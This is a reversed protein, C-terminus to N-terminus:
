FCKFIIKVLFRIKGSISNLIRRLENKIKTKSSSTNEIFKKTKLTDLMIRSRKLIRLM